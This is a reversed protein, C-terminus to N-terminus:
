LLLYQNKDSPWNAIVRIELNMSSKLEIDNPNASSNLMVRVRLSPKRNLMFRPKPTHNSKVWLWLYQILGLCLDITQTATLNLM